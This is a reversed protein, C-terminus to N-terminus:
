PTMLFDEFVNKVVFKSDADLIVVQQYISNKYSFGIKIKGMNHGLTHVLEKSFVWRSHQGAAM